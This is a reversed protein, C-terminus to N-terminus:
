FGMSIERLFRAHEVRDRLARRLQAELGIAHPASNSSSIARALRM